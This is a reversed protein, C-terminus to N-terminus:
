NCERNYCNTYLEMYTGNSVYFNPDVNIFDAMAQVLNRSKRVCNSACGFDEVMEVKEKINPKVIEENSSNANIMTGTTFVFVMALILKKM